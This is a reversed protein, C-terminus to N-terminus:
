NTINLSWFVDTKYIEILRKYLTEEVGIGGNNHPERQERQSELRSGVPKWLYSTPNSFSIWTKEAINTRYGPERM